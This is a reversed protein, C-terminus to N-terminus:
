YESIDELKVLYCKSILFLGFPMTSGHFCEFLSKVSETMVDAEGRQVDVSRGFATAMITEMTFNGFIKSIDVSRGTDAAEGVVEMLVNKCKEIIPIM